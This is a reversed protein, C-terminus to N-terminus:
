RQKIVQSELFCNAKVHDLLACAHGSKEKAQCLFADKSIDIKSIETESVAFKLVSDKQSMPFDYNM